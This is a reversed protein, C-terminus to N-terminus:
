FYECMWKILRVGDDDRVTGNSVLDAIAYAMKEYPHEHTEGGDRCADTRASDGLDTPKENNYRQFCAGAGGGRAYIIGNTDPNNRVLRYNSKLDHLEYGWCELILINTELTHRRQFVHVKEHLITERQKADTHAVFFDDPLFVIDGITHPYDNEVDAGVFKAFRWPLASFRSFRACARDIARVHAEIATRETPTFPVVSAKYRAFYDERTPARRAVLDAPTMSGFFKTHRDLHVAVERESPFM